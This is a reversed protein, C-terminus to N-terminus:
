LGEYVAAVPLTLQISTLTLSAEPGPVKHARWGEARRPLTIEPSAQALLVYEELSELTTCAFFKERKDGRDTSSSMVEIILKPHRVFRPNTDRAACTVVLDPHYFYADDRLTLNGRIDSLSLKCPGGRLHQRLAIYLNGAIQNQVRTEGALACVWGGLYEHRVDSTEEAALYEEVTIYDHKEAVQM